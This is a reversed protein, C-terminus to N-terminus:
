ARQQFALTATEENPQKSLDVVKGDKGVEDSGDKGMEDSKHKSM